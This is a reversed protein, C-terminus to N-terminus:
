LNFVGCGACRWQMWFIGASYIDTRIDAATCIIVHIIHITVANTAHIRQIVYCNRVDTAAVHIANAGTCQVIWISYRCIYACCHLGFSRNTNSEIVDLSGNAFAIKGNHFQSPMADCLILYNREGDIKTYKSMIKSLNMNNEVYSACM